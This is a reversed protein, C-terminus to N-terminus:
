SSGDHLGPCPVFSGIRGCLKERTGVDDRALLLMDGDRLIIFHQPMRQWDALLEPDCMDLCRMLLQSIVFGPSFM